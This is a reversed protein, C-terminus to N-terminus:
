PKTGQNSLGKTSKTRSELKHGDDLNPFEVQVLMGAKLEEKKNDVIAVIEITRTKQDVSPSLRLVQTERVVDLSRFRVRALTGVRVRSLASEPLRARVELQTIDQLVLVAGGSGVWEGPEKLRSAVLGAIPARVYSDGAVSRAQALAVKARRLTLEAQELQSEAQDYAARTMSGSAMLRKKRDFELRALRHSTEASQVGVKAEKIALSRTGSDTRFLLQGKKVRDGEKVKVERLKGAVEAAVTAERIPRTTGSAGLGSRRKAPPRSSTPAKLASQVARPASEAKPDPLAASSEKQQCAGVALCLFLPILSKMNTRGGRCLYPLIRDTQAALDPPGPSQLWRVFVAEILGTLSGALLDADVDMRLQGQQQADGIVQILRKTIHDLTEEEDENRALRSSGKAVRQQRILVLGRHEEAFMFLRRVVDRLRDMPDDIDFAPELAQTVLARSREMVAAFLEEQSAFYNYVTGTGVGALAAIDAVKTEGVGRKVLLEEAADLIADRYAVKLKSRLRGKFAAKGTGKQSSDTNM